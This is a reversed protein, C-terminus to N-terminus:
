IKTKYDRRLYFLIYVDRSVIDSSHIRSVSSDSIHYWKDTEGRRVNATYHGGYISGIHNIVAILDYTSKETPRDPPLFLELDLGDLPFDVLTNLKRIVGKEQAFRKLQIILVPPLSQLQLQKAAKTPQNCKEHCFWLDNLMELTVFEKLCHLIDKPFEIPYLRTPNKHWEQDEKEQEM